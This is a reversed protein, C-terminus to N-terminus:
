WILFRHIPTGDDGWVGEDEKHVPITCSSVEFRQGVHCCLTNWFIGRGVLVVWTLVHSINYLLKTNKPWSGQFNAPVENDNWKWYRSEQLTGNLDALRKTKAPLYKAWIPSIEVKQYNLWSEQDNYKRVETCLKCPILSLNTWIPIWEYGSLNLTFFTVEARRM